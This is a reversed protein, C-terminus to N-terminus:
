HSKIPIVLRHEIKNNWQVQWVRGDSQDLLIFNYMNQTPYLYFRGNEELEGYPVLSNPNLFVEFQLNDDELSYQVQWIKGTATDLKLFTWMNTTPFIVFRDKESTIDVATKTGDCSSFCATSIALFLILFYFRLQRM